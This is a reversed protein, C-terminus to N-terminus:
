DLVKKGLWKGSRYRSIFCIERFLWDTCWGIWVGWLGIPTARCLFWSLAVRFVWMSIGSVWMTYSVDGSARLGNPLTFACPWTFVKMVSSFWILQCALSAGAATLATFRVVVPVSVSLLISTALVIGSSIETFRVMYHKAEETQGRGLCQGAVTLLGTGIAMAPMSGFNELTSVIAQAAIATTGLSAVTSQVALKGFQFMSNEVATPLGIRIIRKMMAGDPRFDRLRGLTIVQGPRSQFYLMVCASLIRSFLTSLAAGLVGLGCAFILVANGIINVGDAVAAVIMPRRSNGTARHLAASVSYLGLFPYSLATVLFYIEAAALVDAEVSGFILRLIPTRLSALTVTLFLALILAAILVQRSARNAKNMEEHGIYQACVITGGAGLASFFYVVLTNISDVLSVGSIAAEGVNSVMLTDAVGMLGTLVQEIVLPILLARIQAKTFM